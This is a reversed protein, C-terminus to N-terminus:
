WAGALRWRTVTGRREFGLADYLLAGEESSLFGAVRAGSAHLPVLTLARGIGRRRAAALTGVAYLSAVGGGCLLLTVGVPEGGATDDFATWQRWPLGDWGCRRASELWSREAVEPFGYIRCLAAAWTRHAAEGRVEDLRVGDPVGAPPLAALEAEEWDGRDHAEMGAARLADLVAPPTASTTWWFAPRGHARLAAVGAEVDGPAGGTAGNFIPWPIGSLAWRAEGRRGGEAGPLGAMVAILARLHADAHGATTM